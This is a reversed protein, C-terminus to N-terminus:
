RRWAVSDKFETVVNVFPAIMKLLEGDELPGFVVIERAGRLTTISQWPLIASNGSHECVSAEIAVASEVQIVSAFEARGTVCFSVPPVTLLGVSWADVGNPRVTEVRMPESFLPGTLLQGENLFADAGM